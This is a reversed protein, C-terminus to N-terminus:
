EVLRTASKTSLRRVSMNSVCKCLAVPHTEGKKSAISQKSAHVTRSYRHHPVDQQHHSDSRCAKVMDVRAANGLRGSCIERIASFADEGFSVMSFSTSAIALSGHARSKKNWISGAASTHARVLGICSCCPMAISQRTERNSDAPSYPPM